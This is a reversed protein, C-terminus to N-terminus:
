PQAETQSGVWDEFQLVLTQWTQQLWGSFTEDYDPLGNEDVPHLPAVSAPEEPLYGPIVLYQLQDRDAESFGLENARQELRPISRLDAIEARIQENERVLQERYAQLEEMQRGITSTTTAQALYLAGIIIAVILALAIMAALQSQRRWPASRLAHQLWQSQRSLNDDAM